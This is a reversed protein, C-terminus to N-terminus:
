DLPPETEWVRISGTQQQQQRQEECSSLMIYVPETGDSAYAFHRLQETDTLEQQQHVINCSSPCCAHLGIRGVDRDALIGAAASTVLHWFGLEMLRQRQLQQRQCPQQQRRQQQVVRIHAFSCERWGATTAINLVGLGRNRARCQHKSWQQFTATHASCALLLWSRYHQASPSIFLRLSKNASIRRSM